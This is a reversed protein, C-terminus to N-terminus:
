FEQHNDSGPAQHVGTTSINLGGSDMNVSAVPDAAALQAVLRKFEPPGYGFRKMGSYTGDKVIREYFILPRGHEQAYHKLWELTQEPITRGVPIANIVRRGHWPLSLLVIAGCLDPRMWDPLPSDTVVWSCMYNRCPDQPRDQYISCGDSHSYPCPKGPGVKHGRIEAGLWGQCCATCPLCQRKPAENM